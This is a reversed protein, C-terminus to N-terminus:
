GKQIKKYEEILLEPFSFEHTFIPRGFVKEISKHFVSFPVCLCEQFLQLEVIEKETWDKWEGKNVFDIAQESTLQEM